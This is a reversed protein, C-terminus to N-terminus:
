RRRRTLFLGIISYGLLLLPALEWWHWQFRSRPPPDRWSTYDDRSRPIGDEGLSYVAVRARLREPAEDRIRRDSNSVDPNAIKNDGDHDLLVRYTRGWPDVLRMGSEDEIMGRRGDKAKNVALFAIRRTNGWSDDEGLLGALFPGSSELLTDKGEQDMGPARPLDGYEALHFYIAAQIDKVVSPAILKYARKLLCFGATQVAVWWGLSTWFLIWLVARSPWKM